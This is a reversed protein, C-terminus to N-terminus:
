PALSCDLRSMCPWAEWHIVSGLSIGIKLTLVLGTALVQVCSTTCLALMNKAHSKSAAFSHASSFKYIFLCLCNSFESLLLEKENLEASVGHNPADIAWAERITFGSNTSQVVLRFFAEITPEWTEKHFSTSHLFILTLANSDSWHRELEPLWYRKATVHLPYGLRPLYVVSQELM